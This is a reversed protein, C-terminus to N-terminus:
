FKKKCVEWHVAPISAGWPDVILSIPIKKMNKTIGRYIYKGCNKCKAKSNFDDKLRVDFPPRELSTIEVHHSYQPDPSQIM